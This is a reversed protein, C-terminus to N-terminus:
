LIKQKVHEDVVENVNQGIFIQFPMGSVDIITSHLFVEVGLKDNDNILRYEFLSTSSGKAQKIISYIEKENSVRPLVELVLALESLLEKKVAFSEDITKTLAAYKLSNIVDEYKSRIRENSQSQLEGIEDAAASPKESYTTNSAYLYYSEIAGKKLIFCGVAELVSFLSNLRTKLSIWSTADPWKKLSNDDVSFLQAVLARRLAKEEDDKNDNNIWYPHIKYIDKMSDKHLQVLETIKSKISRIMESINDNGRENALKIADPLQSFLDVINNDDTFGDLDTLIAVEKGILRFLKTIIPFQGKGDVPIIQSGAVDINLNLKNSLFRCIILDSAGEILLVKKAFFGAKYVQSMRMLFDKLKKNKLEPTEPAIQIPLEKETFFVLNSLDKISNFSIMETSHTSIIITKGYISISKQIERLLYSQLQPHLSVEPEDIMLVEVDEDFLAALISIVNVLGSAEAVVSYEDETETKEFFVKMNGADWRLYIQRNFLVSLREAVKIYVDKRDDMAFFDGSATEIEHRAQKAKQDGVNFQEESYLYQNTRSRYQEMVGIRNSSLYRVKGNGITSKIHDRLAKLTQTKGSANAGVFTTLGSYLTIGVEQEGFIKKVKLNCKYPYDM